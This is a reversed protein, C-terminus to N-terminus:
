LMKKILVNIKDKRYGLSGKLTFPTKIGKREFGGRPPHLHFYNEKEGDKVIGRKEVLLAYTEEDIEGYTVYDKCKDLMGMLSATKPYVSCTHKKHLKLMIMTAEIDKKVDDTGRIRIIAIKTM